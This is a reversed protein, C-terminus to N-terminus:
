KNLIEDVRKWLKYTLEVDWENYKVIEHIRRSKFLEAISAPLPIKGQNFLFQSWEELTGPRNLSWIPKVSKVVHMLDTYRSKFLGNAPLNYKLCKSFIFRIDFMVNFGIIEDFMKKHFYELFNKLMNEESEEDFFVVTKETDVDKVGICVIRGVTPDLDETEIDIICKRMYEGMCKGMVRNISIADYTNLSETDM